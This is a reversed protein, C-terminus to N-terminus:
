EANMGKAVRIEVRHLVVDLILGVAGITLMGVIVIDPRCISSGSQIMYGLGKNSALLEAAILAAWSTGLAVRLGTFIMPIATPIAIKFLKQCNSAGFVDGVWLHLESTQRIGSYANITCAVMSNLFIVMAKSGIGIGFMVLFVPIWAIGPIPRILDFVPRVFRDVWKNWAMMIGLPIGVVAGWVYGLLTVELSALLNQLLTAGDPSSTYLKKIFTQFCKVPGPFVSPNTVQLMDICVYWVFLVVLVSSISLLLYKNGKSLKKLFKV